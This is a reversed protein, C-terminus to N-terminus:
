NNSKGYKRRIVHKTNNEKLEKKREEKLRKDRVTRIWDAEKDTPELDIQEDMMDVGPKEVM